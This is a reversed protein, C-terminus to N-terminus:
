KDDGEDNLFEKIAAGIFFISLLFLILCVTAGFFAMVADIGSCKVMEAYGLISSMLFFYMIIFYILGGLIVKVIQKM